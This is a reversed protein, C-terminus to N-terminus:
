HAPSPAAPRADPPDTVAVVACDVHRAGMRKLVRVCAALTAGTTKVDDVLLVDFPRLDVPQPAFAHRLNRARAAASLRAQQHAARRRHLVPAEDHGRAAALARAILRAQNFGRRWRRSWHLPVPVVLVPHAHPGAPLAAALQRGLHPALTWASGFKLDRVWHNLPPAYPGLRTLRRWPPPRDRCRACGATPDTPDVVGPGTSVGCRPCAATPPDPAWDPFARAAREVDTPALLSLLGTRRPVHNRAPPTPRALIM